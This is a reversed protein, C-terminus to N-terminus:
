KSDAFPQKQFRIKLRSHVKQYWMRSVITCISYNKLSKSNKYCLKCNQKDIGGESSNISSYDYATTRNHEALFIVRCIKCTECSFVQELPLDKFSTASRCLDVKDFSLNRCQHKRTFEAFNRM